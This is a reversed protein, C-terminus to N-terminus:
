DISSIFNQCRIQRICKIISNNCTCYPTIGSWMSFPCSHFIIKCTEVVMLDGLDWSFSVANADIKCYMHIFKKHSSILSLILPQFQQNGCDKHRKHLSHLVKMFLCFVTPNQCNKAICFGDPNIMVGMYLLYFVHDPM